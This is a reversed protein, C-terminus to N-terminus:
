VRVTSTNKREIRVTKAQVQGQKLLCFLPQQFVLSSSLMHYSARLIGLFISYERRQQPSPMPGLSARSRPPGHRRCGVDRLRFDLGASRASLAPRFPVAEWSELALWRM